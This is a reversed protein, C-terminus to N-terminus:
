GNILAMVHIVYPLTFICSQANQAQTTSPPLHNAENRPGKVRFFSHLTTLVGQFPTKTPGLANQIGQYPSTDKARALFQILDIILYISNCKKGSEKCLM